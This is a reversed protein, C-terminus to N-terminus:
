GHMANVAAFTAAYAGKAEADRLPRCRDVVVEGTAGGTIIKMTEAIFEALPMAMPDTAQQPGGLETQVYPPAIELVEISTAKLQERLSESYSHM